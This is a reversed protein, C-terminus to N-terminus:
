RNNKARERRYRQENNQVCRRKVALGTESGGFIAEELQGNGSEDRDGADSPVDLQQRDQTLPCAVWLNRPGNQERPQCGVQKQATLDHPYQARKNPVRGAWRLKNAALIKM